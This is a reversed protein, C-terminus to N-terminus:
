PASAVAPDAALQDVPAVPMAPAATLTPAAIAPAQNRSAVEALAANAEDNNIHLFAVATFVVAGVDTALLPTLVHQDVLLTLFPAAVAGVLAAVKNASLSM